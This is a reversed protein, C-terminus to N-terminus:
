TSTSNQWAASTVLHLFKTLPVRDEPNGWQTFVDEKLWHRLQPEDQGAPYFAIHPHLFNSLHASEAESTGVRDAGLVKPGHFTDNYRFVWTLRPLARYRHHFAVLPVEELYRVGWRGTNNVEVDDFLLMDGLSEFMQYPGSVGNIRELLRDVLVDLFFKPQEPICSSSSSLESSPGSSAPTKLDQDLSLFTQPWPVGFNREELLRFLARATYRFGHIFGGASKRFDLSHSITGASYMGQVGNVEFAHSINPYKDRHTMKLPLSADLFRADMVWGYCRIVHDMPYRLNDGSYRARVDALENMLQPHKRLLSSTVKLDQFSNEFVAPDIRLDEPTLGSQNQMEKSEPRAEDEEELDDAEEGGFRVNKQMIGWDGRGHESYAALREKLQALIDSGTPFRAIHLKYTLNQGAKSHKERCADDACEESSVGWVCLRGNCPIILLRRGFGLGDFDFTDLSKLLYTDLITTRGARIDGVYHTQYAFRVGRGGEPLERARSLLHVETTYKQLEQATEM